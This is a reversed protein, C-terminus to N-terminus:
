GGSQQSREVAQQRQPTFANSFIREAVERSFAKAAADPKVTIYGPVQAQAASALLAVCGITLWAGRRARSRFDKTMM